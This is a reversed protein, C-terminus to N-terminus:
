EFIGGRINERKKNYLQTSVEKIQELNNRWDKMEVGGYIWRDIEQLSKKLEAQPLVKFIETSTYTTYPKGDVRQIYRKWLNILREFNETTLNKELQSNLRQFQTLYAANRRREIFLYLFRQIPRNFFFNIGLVLILFIGIALLLYPYNFRTPINQPSLDQYIVPKEPLPGKFSPIVKLSAANSVWITSDLGNFEYVPIQITQITDPLYTTLIYLVSDKSTGNSSVTPFFEKKLLEFPAFSHSTDPFLIRKESKYKFCVSLQVPQGIRISDQSFHVKPNTQGLGSFAFRGQFVVVFLLFIKGSKM